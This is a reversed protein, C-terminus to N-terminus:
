VLDVRWLECCPWWRCCSSLMASYIALIVAVIQLGDLHVTVSVLPLLEFLCGFVDAGRRFLVRDCSLVQFRCVAVRGSLHDDAAITAAMTVPCEGLDDLVAAM